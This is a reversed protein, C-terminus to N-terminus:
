GTAKEQYQGLKRIQTKLRRDATRGTFEESRNVGTERM